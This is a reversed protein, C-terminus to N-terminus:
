GADTYTKKYICYVFSLVSHALDVSRLGVTENQRLSKMVFHPNPCSPEPSLLFINLIARKLWDDNSETIGRMEPIIKNATLQQPGTCFQYPLLMSQRGNWEQFRANWEM